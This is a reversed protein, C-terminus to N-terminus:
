KSNQGGGIIFGVSLGLYSTDVTGIIQGNPIEIDTKPVFNYELGFRLNDLEFGGRLLLGVRKNVSGELINESPNAIVVPFVEIPNPLFHIGLGLGLYSRYNVKNFYYDFTPIFSLTGNESEDDTNFQFIDINEINQSNLRVGIRLGIATNESFKLNPEVNLFLGLNESVSFALFGTEIRLKFISNEQANVSFLCFLLIILSLVKKPMVSKNYFFKLWFIMM